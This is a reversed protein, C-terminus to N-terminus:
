GNGEIDIAACRAATIVRQVPVNHQRSAKECNRYEPEARLLVGNLYVCKIIISGFETEVTRFDRDLVAREVVRLRLGITTTNRFICEIVSNKDAAECLITAEIAPRGKKGICSAAYCDLAGSALISSAADPWIRADMDDLLTKIEICTDSGWPANDITEGVTVRLLNPREIDRSGAGMGASQPVMAPPPDAWSEVATVLVAAGTPTTIENNITTPSTPVGSLIHLTAPAPVPLIGHACKVTGTGTAVASAYVKEIGLLYLGCFSGVIDIIADLAGTEHFHVENISIGHAKSEAEALIQFADSSKRIVYEPLDSETIIRLIDPLLRSDTEDEISVWALTGQLSKKRVKKATLEWGSIDLKLLMDRLRNIDLGCDILAGLIMNGSVGCFPDFVAIKM